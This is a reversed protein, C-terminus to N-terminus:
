KGTLVGNTLAASATTQESKPDCAEIAAARVISDDEHPRVLWQGRWQIYSAAYIAGSLPSHLDAGKPMQLLFAWQDAAIQSNIRLSAGNKTRQRGAISPTPPQAAYNFCVASCTGATVSDEPSVIKSSAHRAGQNTRSQDLSCRGDDLIIQCSKLSYRPRHGRHKQTYFNHVVVCCLFRQEVKGNLGRTVRSAHQGFPESPFSRRM